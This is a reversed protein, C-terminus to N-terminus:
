IKRHKYGKLAEVPTLNLAKSVPLYAALFSLLMLSLCVIFVQYIDVTSPFEADYYINPMPIPFYDLSYIILVGVILGSMMGALSLFFGVSIFIRQAKKRSLGLAMLLGIDKPKLFICFYLRSM